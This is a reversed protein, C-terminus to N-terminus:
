NQGEQERYENLRNYLTKLSFGLSDAAKHKNGEFHDLTAMVLRKEAEKAAMGVPIHLIDGQHDLGDSPPKETSVHLPPAVRGSASRIKEPFHEPLLERDALIHARQTANALERVNGPWGYSMIAAEAVKAIRTTKGELKNFKELFHMALLLKDNGRERLPPIEIPFVNLRYLLDERFTGNKVCQEPDRNTAAVIRVDVDIPVEGGTRMIQGTELVRLLKVQLELPMETVEDLFLTGGSAREFYGRHMREAGTFSGKEHGFLQSEILNPSVAGCNIPEYPGKSQKGQEHLTRAVVDKGTGSEGTIFVTASTPAVRDIMDYLQNMVPSSGVLRGFHGLRRLEGRLDVVQDKLDRTRVANVLVSRLRALDLPKTLYDSVGRRLAKVATDLTANGTVLIVTPDYPPEISDLIELGDGDPLMLDTIIVDPQERLLAEVAEALTGARLTELGERCVLQDLADLADPDDEVLLASTM